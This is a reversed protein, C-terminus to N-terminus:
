VCFFCGFMVRMRRLMMLMGGFMMMLGGLMMFGAIMFFRPMVGMKSMRMVRVGLVMVIFGGLSVGIVVVSSVPSSFPAEVPLSKKQVEHSLM